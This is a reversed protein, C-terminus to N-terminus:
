RRGGSWSGSRGGAGHWSGSGNSWSASGGYAGHAAGTGNSWAASSGRWGSASGTGNNWNASGRPGWASGHGDDWTAGGGYATHASGAYANGTAYGGHYNDYYAGNYFGTGGYAVVGTGYYAPTGVVAVTPGTSAVYTDDACGTQFLLAGAALTTMALLSLKNKMTSKGKHTILPRKGKDRLRFPIEHTGAPATFSFGGSGLWPRLNWRDFDVLTRPFNPRDTFTVALRRPLASSGAEIWIEWNVGPSRFALHVCSVGRVDGQGVVVASGVGRMLIQYPNSFLFGSSAFRIGTENRLGDLMADITPPAKSSSYNKTGPAFASATTGDYLFDFPPSEGGVRVRLKDPRKLAVEVTPFLTLFQGTKAPVEVTNTSTYTFSKASALSDSMRKLQAVAQPDIAPPAKATATGAAPAPLACVVSLALGLAASHFRATTKM